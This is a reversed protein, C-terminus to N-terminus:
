LSVWFADWVVDAHSKEPGYPKLSWHRWFHSAIERGGETVMGPYYYRLCSGLVTLVPTRHGTGSWSVEKWARTGVPEIIMREEFRKPPKM